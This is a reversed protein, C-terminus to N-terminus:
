DNDAHFALNSEEGNTSQFILKWLIYNGSKILIKETCYYRGDTTDSRIFIDDTVEVAEYDKIEKTTDIYVATIKLGKITRKYAIDLYLYFQKDVGTLKSPEYYLTVLYNYKKKFQIWKTNTLFDRKIKKM